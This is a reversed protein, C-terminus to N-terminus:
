FRELHQAEGRPDVIISRANEESLLTSAFTNRDMCAHYVLIRVYMKREIQLTGKEREKEREKEGEERERERERQEAPCM